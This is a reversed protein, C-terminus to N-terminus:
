QRQTSSAKELDKKIEPGFIPNWYDDLGQDVDKYQDALGAVFPRGATFRKRLPMLVTEGAPSLLASIIQQQLDPPLSRSLSFAQNPFHPGRQIITTQMHNPDMHNLTVKPTVGIACKHSVVGKYINDWGKTNLIYPQESPNTFLTQAWLTGFNPPPPACFIAGTADSITKLQSNGAWTFIRWDQPQPLRPGLTAGQNHLRWAVFHPGDFYVDGYNQWVWSQYQLWNSPQEYVFKHGTVKTLFAAVSGFDQEGIAPKERPPAVVRYYQGSSGSSADAHATAAGFVAIAGSVIWIIGSIRLAHKM